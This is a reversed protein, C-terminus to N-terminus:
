GASIARRADIDWLAFRSRQRKQTNGQGLAWSVVLETCFGSLELLVVLAGIHKCLQQPIRAEASGQKDAGWQQLLYDLREEDARATKKAQKKRRQLDQTLELKRKRLESLQRDLDM